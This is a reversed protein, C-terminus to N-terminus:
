RSALAGAPSDYERVVPGKGVEGVWTCGFCIFFAPKDTPTGNDLCLLHVTKHCEPCYSKTTPALAYDSKLTEGALEELRERVEDSVGSRTGRVPAVEADTVCPLAEIAARVKEVVDPMATAVYVRRLEDVEPVLPYVATVDMVGQVARMAKEAEPLDQGEAVTIVVRRRAMPNM